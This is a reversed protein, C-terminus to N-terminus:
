IQNEDFSNNLKGDLIFISFSIMTFSRCDLMILMLVRLRLSGSTLFM